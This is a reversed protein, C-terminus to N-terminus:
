LKSHYTELIRTRVNRTMKELTEQMENTNYATERGGGGWGKNM